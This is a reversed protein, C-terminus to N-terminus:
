NLLSPQGCDGALLGWAGKDHPIILILQLGSIGSKLLLLHARCFDEAVALPVSPSLLFHAALVVAECQIICERTQICHKIKDQCCWGSAHGTMIHSHIHIFWTSYEELPKFCVSTLMILPVCTHEYMSACRSIMCKNIIPTTLLSPFYIM